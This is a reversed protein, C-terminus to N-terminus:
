AVSSNGITLAGRVVIRRIPPATENKMRSMLMRVATDAMMRIPQAVTTLEPEYSHLVSIGNFAAVAVEDPMAVKNVLLQKICGIGIDDTACVIGDPRSPLALFAAVAEMGTSFHQRAGHLVLRSDIALGAAELTSSYGIYKETSIVSNPAAGIYAIRKKGISLLHETSVRIGDRADLFINDITDQSPDCTILVLPLERSLRELDRQVGPEDLFGLIVGAYNNRLVNDITKRLENENRETTFLSLSYGLSQVADRLAGYLDIYYMNTISQIILAINQTQRTRMSVALANPQYDLKKIAEAIRSRTEPKVMEPANFYRSVSAVSVRAAKAVDKITAMGDSGM